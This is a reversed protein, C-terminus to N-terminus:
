GVPPRVAGLYMGQGLRGFSDGSPLAAIDRVTQTYDTALQGLAELAQGQDCGGNTRRWQDYGDHFDNWESELARTQRLLAILNVQGTESLSARADDLDKRLARRLSNVLSIQTDFVDFVTADNLTLTSPDAGGNGNTSSDGNVTEAIALDEPLVPVSEIVSGGGDISGLLRRLLLQEGDAAGAM